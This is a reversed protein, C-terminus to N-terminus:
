NLPHFGFFILLFRLTAPFGQLSPFILLKGFVVTAYFFNCRSIGLNIGKCIIHLCLVGENYMWCVRIASNIEQDDIDTSESVTDTANKKHAPHHKRRTEFMEPIRLHKKNKKLVELMLRVVFDLM